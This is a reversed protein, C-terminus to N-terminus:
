GRDAHMSRSLSARQGGVRRSSEAGLASRGHLRREHPTSARRLTAPNRCASMELRRRQSRCVPHRQVSERGRTTTTSSSTAARSAAVSRRADSVGTGPCVYRSSRSASSPEHLVHSADCDDTQVPLRRRLGRRDTGTCVDSAQRPMGVDLVIPGHFARRLDLARAATGCGPLRAPGRFPDLARWMTAPDLSRRALLLSRSRCGSTRSGSRAGSSVWLKTSLTAPRTRGPRPPSSASSWGSRWCSTARPSRPPSGDPPRRGPSRPRSSRRSGSASDTEPLDRRAELVMEVFAAAEVTLGLLRAWLRDFADADPEAALGRARRLQGRLRRVGPRAPDPLAPLARGPRRGGGQAIASLPVHFGQEAFLRPGRRPDRPPEGRSCRPWSQEAGTEHPM